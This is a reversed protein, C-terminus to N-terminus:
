KKEELLHKTQTYLEEDHIDKGFRIVYVPVSSVIRKITSIADAELEYDDKLRPYVWPKRLSEYDIPTFCTEHMKKIAEEDSILRSEFCLPREFDIKSFIVMDLTSTQQFTTDPFFTPVDTLPIPFSTRGEKFSKPLHYKGSDLVHKKLFANNEVSGLKYVVTIPFYDMKAAGDSYLFTRDNSIISSKGASLLKSFYTTKGSGENGLICIGHGDTVLSTGHIFLKGSNEELRVIIERILRFVYKTTDRIGDGIVVYHQNSLKRVIYKDPLQMYCKESGVLAEMHYENEFTCIARLNSSEILKKYKWFMRQEEIYEILIQNRNDCDEFSPESYCFKAIHNIQNKLLELPDASIVFVTGLILYSERYKSM